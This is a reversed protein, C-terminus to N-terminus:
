INISINLLKKETQDIKNTVELQDELTGQDPRYSICKHAIKNSQELDITGCELNLQLAEDM